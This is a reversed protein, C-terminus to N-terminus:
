EPSGQMDTKKFMGTIAQSMATGSTECQQGFQDLTAGYGMVNQISINAQPAVGALRKTFDVIYGENATSAAGLENVTSGVRIM